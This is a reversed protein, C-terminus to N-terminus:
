PHSLETQIKAENGDGTCELRLYELFQSDGWWHAPSRRDAGTRRCTAGQQGSVTVSTVGGSVALTLRPLMRVEGAQLPIENTTLTSMGAGTVTIGYTGPSLGTFAFHGDRDSMIARTDAPRSRSGHARCCTEM